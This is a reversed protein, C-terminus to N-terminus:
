IRKAGKGLNCEACAAVLNELTTPGGAIRPVVHDAHLVVLPAKRGCYQCTFSDRRLVEFRLSAPITGSPQTTKRKVNGTAPGSLFTAKGPKLWLGEQEPNNLVIWSESFSRAAPDILRNLWEEDRLYITMGYFSPPRTDWYGDLDYLAFGKTTERLKRVTCNEMVLFGQVKARAVIPGSGWKMWVDDGISLRGWPVPRRTAHTQTFVGVEPREFTGAVYEPTRICVHQAM